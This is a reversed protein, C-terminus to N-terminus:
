EALVLKRTARKGNQVLVMFHIGAPLARGEKKLAERYYGPNLEGDRIVSEVRGQADCLMLKVRGKVPVGYQVTFDGFTPNPTVPCVLAGMLRSKATM